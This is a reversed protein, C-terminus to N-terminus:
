HFFKKVISERLKDLDCTKGFTYRYLKKRRERYWNQLFAHGEIFNYIKQYSKEPIVMGCSHLHTAEERTRVRQNSDFFFMPRNFYLFDYGLSSFDGLYITVRKLLPLVLPFLSLIQVNHKDRYKEQIHFVSGTQRHQLWPHLKVILNYYNPLQEIISIGVDLLSSSSEMDPWTPAYLIVPQKKTFKSFVEREIIEDYFTKYKQYFPFRYNGTQVYRDMQFLTGMKNLREEMQNGYILSLNQMQFHDLSKDSNGHPCYCFHMKKRFIIEFIPSLNSRYHACSTFLIDYREALYALVQQHEQIYIPTVQPYYRLLSQYVSEEDTIIPLQLIYAIVALHDLHHVSNGPALCTVCARDLFFHSLRM